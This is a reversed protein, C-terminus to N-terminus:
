SWLKTCTKNIKECAKTDSIVITIRAWDFFVIQLVQLHEVKKFGNCEFLYFLTANDFYTGM